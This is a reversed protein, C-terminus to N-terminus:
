IGFSCSYDLSDQCVFWDLILTQNIWLECLKEEQNEGSLVQASQKNGSSERLNGNEGHWWSHWTQYTM